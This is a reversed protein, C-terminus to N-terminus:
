LDAGAVALIMVVSVIRAQFLGIGLLRLSAGVFLSFLPMITYNHQELGYYGAALDDGFYGKAWFTYGPAAIWSEDEHAAPFRDLGAVANAWFYLLLLLTLLPPILRRAAM